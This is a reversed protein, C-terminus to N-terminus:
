PTVEPECLSSPCGGLCWPCWPFGSADLTDFEFVFKGQHRPAKTTMVNKMSGPSVQV